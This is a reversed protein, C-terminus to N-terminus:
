WTTRRIGSGAAPGSRFPQRRYKASNTRFARLKDSLVVITSGCRNATRPLLRSTQAHEFPFYFPHLAAAPAANKQPAYRYKGTCDAVVTPLSSSSDIRLL